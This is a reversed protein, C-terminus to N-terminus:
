SGSGTTTPIWRTSLCLATSEVTVPWIVRHTVMSTSGGFWAGDRCRSRGCPRTSLREAGHSRAPFVWTSQCCGHWIGAVTRCVSGLLWRNVRRIARSEGGRRAVVSVARPRVFLRQDAGSASSSGGSADQRAAGNGAAPLKAQVESLGFAFGFPLGTQQICVECRNRGAQHIWEGCLWDRGSSSPPGDLRFHGTWRSVALWARGPRPASPM